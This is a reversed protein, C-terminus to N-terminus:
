ANITRGLVFGIPKAYIVGNPSRAPAVLKWWGLRPWGPAPPPQMNKYPTYVLEKPESDPM